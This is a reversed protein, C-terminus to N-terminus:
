KQFLAMIQESPEYRVVAAKIVIGISTPEHEHKFLVILCM